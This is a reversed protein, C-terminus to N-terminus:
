CICTKRKKGIVSRKEMKEIYSYADPVKCATDGMNVSIKGISQAVRKAEEHLHKYYGGTSIVFGNMVYRVRNPQEHISKEIHHLLNEVEEYSIDEDPTISLYNAYTSWGATRLGEEDANIWERALELAFNSEAAVQAVTYEYLMYWNAQEAWKRLDEKTMKTPNVALGALYMADSNGSDYLEMVLQQDKKVKKLLHKKLDGVKVGFIPEQAGHNIWIRKTQESGLEELQTMVQNYM